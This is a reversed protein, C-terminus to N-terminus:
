PAMLLRLATLFSTTNNKSVNQDTANVRTDRNYDYRNTLAAINPFAVPNNKAGNQDTANVIADLLSNGSEGFAVGWYHIDDAELGSSPTALMRVKLWSSNPVQGNGFIVTVRDSGGVGAGPRITVSSAPVPLNMTFDRGTNTFILDAAPLPGEPLDEVDIMIGNISKNYSIYNRFTAVTGPMLAVKDPAIANDDQVNAGPNNGDWASQNYFIHRGVIKAPRIRVQYDEVEGDQAPGTYSLGGTSNYRFRAFSVGASAWGPTKFSLNNLGAVLPTNTFIQEGLDAWDGDRNFDLWANLFGPASATVDVKTWRGRAISSLFVVGDEDDILALDDGTAAADPQGDGEADILAGLLYGPVIAHNAGMNLALTPYGVILPSDPADGWDRHIPFAEGTLAFALDLKAQSYLPHPFPYKLEAWPPLMTTAMVANDNFHERPDRTKWGFPVDDVTQVELGLWYVVPEQQTGRQVFLEHQTPDICINVQWILTDGNPLLDQTRPDWWWEGPDVSTFVKETFEDPM